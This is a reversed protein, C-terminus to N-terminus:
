LLAAGILLVVSLAMQSIALSDRFRQRGLGVTGTRGGEKLTRNLDPRSLELAPALGFAVGTIASMLLAFGLVGVDIHVDAVRPIGAPHLALMARMAVAALAIGVGAGISSLLLAETLLQQVIRSRSAGLAARVAIERHRDDSRALM